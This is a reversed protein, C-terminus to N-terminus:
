KKLKKGWFQYFFKIVMILGNVGRHSESNDWLNQHKLYDYYSSNIYLELLLKCRIFYCNLM